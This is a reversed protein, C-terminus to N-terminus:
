GEANPCKEHRIPHSVAPEKTDVCVIVAEEVVGHSIDCLARLGLAPLAMSVTSFHSTMFANGRPVSGCCSTDNLNQVHSNRRDSM